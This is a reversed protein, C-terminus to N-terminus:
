DQRLLQQAQSATYPSERVAQSLDERDPHDYFYHIIDRRTILGIYIGRDDIVPVFNQSLSRELLAEVSDTIRIPPNRDTRLVESLPISETKRIDIQYSENGEGRVLYWLFDGESVTSLYTGDRNLVPIATYGYHHLKELGQRVTYDAYLFATKAKPILFYAANM